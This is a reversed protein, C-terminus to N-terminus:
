FIFQMQLRFEDDKTGSGSNAAENELQRYDAQLKFPHKSYYWSIAGGIEKQKNNDVLDSPDIEAYRGAIEVYGPGPGLSPTKFAYSAQVLLGEDKFEPGAVSGTYPKSKRDHYEVVAAFGKSKFIADAGWQTNDNQAVAPTSYTRLDNKLFNAAVALLAGTASDGLDGETLLAGSTWQNMRTAGLLQYQVRATYLFASNDNSAQSRGNGNSVMSRWELKTTGLTGWLALGTERGPNYRGDTIARDVFQQSGSSTLQQRGYPAKFQGFRVRFTKKGRTVDWDINADELFRSAPTGTVDPWNLQLEFELDPRFMFGELKFKARRIQFNGKGDGANETGALKVSDDPLQHTYRVQIRSSMELYFNNGVTFRTKGDRWVINLPPPAPRTVEASLGYKFLFLELATESDAVVTEGNPGIGPRTLGVGVEGSKEFADAKKLDNFVYFRGDKKFEKYALSQITNATYAVQAQAAGAGLAFTAAVALTARCLVKLSM